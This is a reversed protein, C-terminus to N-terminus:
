KNKAQDLAKQVALKWNKSSVTAGSITDVDYSQKDIMKKAMDLRYQKLNPYIKGNKEQGTWDDYNLEKGEKDLRKLNIDTIKDNKIIVVAEEQGFQWPEGKVTYTGDKYVKGGATNCAFLSLTAFVCILLYLIKKM